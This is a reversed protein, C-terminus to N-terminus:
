SSAIRQKPSPVVGPKVPKPVDFRPKMKPQPFPVGEPRVPIPLKIGPEVEPGLEPKESPAGKPAAPEDPDFVLERVDEAALRFEGINLGRAVLEKGDWRFSEVNIVTGDHLRVRGPARAASPEGRFRVAAIREAPVELLGAESELHFRGESFKSPESASIDGNAFVTTPGMAGATSEEGNWPAIRVNSLVHPLGNGGIYFQVKEGVGRVRDKGREGTTMLKSGNLSLAATGRETDVFIRFSARTSRLESNEALPIQRMNMGGGNTRTQQYFRFQGGYLNARIWANGDQTALHVTGVPLGARTCTCDFRL